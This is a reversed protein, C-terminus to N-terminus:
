AARFPNEVRLAGFRRGDQLDESLLVSCRARRAAAVVLADWLSVQDRRALAIAELVLEADPTVVDFAALARTAEEAAKESLPSALKRTVTVYFEQLVQTSVVLRGAPGERGILARAVEQKAPADTDYLYVVVNTDLFLRDSM